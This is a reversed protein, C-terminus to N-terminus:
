TSNVSRRIVLLCIKSQVIGTCWQGWKNATLWLGKFFQLVHVVKRVKHNGNSAWNHVIITGFFWIGGILVNSSLLICKVIDRSLRDDHPEKQDILMPEESCIEMEMLHDCSYQFVARCPVATLKCHGVNGFSCYHQVLGVKCLKRGSM